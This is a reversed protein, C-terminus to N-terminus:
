TPRRRVYETPPNKMRHHVEAPDLMLLACLWRFSRPRTDDSLLWNAANVWDQFDDADRRGRHIIRIQGLKRHQGKRIGTWYDEITQRLTAIWLDRYGDVWKWDSCPGTDLWPEHSCTDDDEPQHSQTM